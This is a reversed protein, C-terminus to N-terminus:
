FLILPSKEANENKHEKTKLKFKSKSSGPSRWFVDLAEVSLFKMKLMISESPKQVLSDTLPYIM